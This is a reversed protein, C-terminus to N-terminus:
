QSAEQDLDLFMQRPRLQRSNVKLVVRVYTVRRIGTASVPEGNVVLETGAVTGDTSAAVLRGLLVARNLTLLNSLDLEALDRNELGTYGTGGAAQHFTLIEIWDAPNRSRPDYRGPVSLVDSGFGHKRVVKRTTTRNLYGKLSEIRIDSTGLKMSTGTEWSRRKGGSSRALFVRNGHAILWDDLIGPLEHRLEGSLQGVGTSELSGTVPSAIRTRWSASMTRTSWVAVPLDDIMSESVGTAVRYDPEDLTRRGERHMGGFSEEPVGSWVVERDEGGPGAPASGDTWGASRAEIRFRQSDASYITAWTRGGIRGTVTDVDVIDLQNVLVDRGNASVGVWAAVLTMALIMLPLTVWTARPRKLVHRVFLFDVPGVLLLVAIVLVLVQWIELRSVQEFEDQM